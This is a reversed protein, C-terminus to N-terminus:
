FGGDRAQGPAAAQPRDKEQGPKEPNYTVVWKSFEPARELLTGDPLPQAPQEGRLLCPAFLGILILAHRM